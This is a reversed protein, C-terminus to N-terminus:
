AGRTHSLPPFSPHVDAAESVASLFHRYISSTLFRAHLSWALGGTHYCRGRLAGSIGEFVSVGAERRVYVDGPVYVYTHGGQGGQGGFAPGECNSIFLFSTHTNQASM